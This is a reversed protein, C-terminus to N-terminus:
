LREQALEPVLPADRHLVVALVHAPELADHGAAILPDGVDDLGGEVAARAEVAPVLVEGPVRPLGGDGVDAELGRAVEARQGDVARERPVVDVDAEGAPEEELLPLASRLVAQRGRAALGQAGLD